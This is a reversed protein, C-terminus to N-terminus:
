KVGKLKDLAINLKLVNVIPEGFSLLPNEKNNEIIKKVETEDIGRAKAIRPVQIMASDVYIYSELGSGSALVLDSPVIGSSPLSDEKRIQQVRKQVQDILKQNTPGLNSGSSTSSNYNIVSPRGHFYISSTFNQGILQSGLLKGNESILNGNAQQPFILQSIGTMVIPYILGLILTFVIFILVANKIEKM